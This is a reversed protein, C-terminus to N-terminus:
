AGITRLIEDMRLSTAQLSFREMVDARGAEGLRKTWTPDAELRHLAQILAPADGPPVLLGTRHDEIIETVGGTNVAVVPRGTAMGEVVVRGFPESLVSCHVLADCSAMLEWADERFGLFRVREKLGLSEVQQHLHRVYEEDEAFLADGVVLACFHPPLSALAELLIHQGKWSALRSFLGVVFHEGAGFDKHHESPVQEYKPAKDFEFGNYLIHLLAKKGGSTIFSRATAESNAVVCRAFFNALMVVGKRNWFSFHSPDLLDHLHYVVPKPSFLTSLASVVFAKHTNAWIVDCDHAEAALKQADTFIGSLARLIASIKVKKRVQNLAPSSKLVKTPIEQNVLRKYLPGDAFLVVRGSARHLRALDLLCLEGGGLNATHDVFLVNVM